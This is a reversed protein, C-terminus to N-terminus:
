GCCFSYAAYWLVFVATKEKQKERIERKEENDETAFYGEFFLRVKCFNYTAYWLVLM